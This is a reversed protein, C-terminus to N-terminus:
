HPQHRQLVQQIRDFVEHPAGLGDVPELVGRGAYYAVLPATQNHYAVLRQRIVDPKDDQRGRAALRQLLAEQDVKLEIVADLPTGREALFRDLEEAQPLTRPFGDLLYGDRCDEETLRRCVLENIISDPLLRGASMYDNAIQGITSQQRVAERLMDGTSLHPLRYHEILRQSQTGKGAGPPGLFVIRM